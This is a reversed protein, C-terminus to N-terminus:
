APQTRTLEEAAPARSCRVFATEVFGAFRAYDSVLQLQQTEHGGDHNGANRVTPPSREKQRPDPTPANRVSCGSM